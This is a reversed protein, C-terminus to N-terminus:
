SYRYQSKNLLIDSDTDSHANPVPLGNDNLFENLGQTVDMVHEANEM